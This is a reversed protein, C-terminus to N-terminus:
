SVVSSEGFGAKKIGTVSQIYILCRSVRSAFHVRSLVLDCFCSVFDCCRLCVCAGLDLGVGMGMGCGVGHM